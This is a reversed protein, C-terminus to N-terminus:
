LILWAGYRGGEFFLFFIVISYLIKLYFLLLLKLFSLFVVLNGWFWDVLWCWFLQRKVQRNRLRVMGGPKIM